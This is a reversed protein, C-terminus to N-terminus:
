AAAYRAALGYPMAFLACQEDKMGSESLAPAVLPHVPMGLVDDVLELLDRCASGYGSIYVLGLDAMRYAHSVYRVAVDLESVLAGILGAWLDQAPREYAALQNCQLRSLLRSLQLEGFGFQERLQEHVERLGHEVRRTYVVSGGNTIVAFSSDWGIHLYGVIGQETSPEQSVCTLAQEPLGIASADFGVEDLLALSSDIKARECSVIMSERMRGKQPLDWIGIEFSDPAGKRERAVEVRALQKKISISEVPPLELIHSSCWKSDPLISINNGAFGRRALMSGVWRLEEANLDAGGAIMRPFSAAALLRDENGSRILQVARFENADHTIGIASCSTRLGTLM